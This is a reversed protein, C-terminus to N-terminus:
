MESLVKEIHDIKKVLHQIMMTNLAIFEEYRLSYVFEGEVIKDETYEQIETHSEGTKPDFVTVESKKKVPITKPDKCFGAFDQSTLECEIMAQEVDQSIFGIHTRGSNGDKFTFSSPILKMFFELFKPNSSLDCINDKLNRDSTNISGSTSYVTGWKHNPSGLSVYGNVDPDWTWMNDHVGIHVFFNGESSGCIYLHQPSPSYIKSSSAWQIPVSNAMYLTGRMTDGTLTLKNALLNNTETETYYRSDHNHSTDSKSNLKSDVESETYYRGDHDGSTKHTNLSQNLSYTLASSAVQSNDNTTLSTAIGKMGNVGGSAYLSGNIQFLESRTPYQNVGVKGSSDIFMIPTGADLTVFIDQVTKVKDTISFEFFYQKDIDFSLTQSTVTYQNSAGKTITMNTWSASDRESTTQGYRFKLSSITNLGNVDAYTISAAITTPAEFNNQRSLSPTVSPDIYRIVNIQKSVSTSFGRSDTITLTVSYNGSTPAQASLTYESNVAANTTYNNFTLKYSSITAYNKATAAATIKACVSSLTQVFKTNDATTFKSYANNKDYVSLNSSSFTPANGSSSITITASSSTVDALRNSDSNANSQSSYTGIYFYYTCKSTNAMAQYILKKEASTFTVTVNGSVVGTLAKEFIGDKVSTYLFLRTYAKGPNSITLTISNSSLNWNPIFTIRARDQTSFQVQSSTTQLGSDSRTLTIAIKYSTNVSLGSVSFSGSTSNTTINASKVTGGSSNYLTYSGSSIQVDASWSFTASTLATSSTKFSTISAYRPIKTLTINQANVYLDSPAIGLYCYASLGCVKSGDSNHPVTFTMTPGVQFWVNITYNININLNQTQTEGNCSISLYASGTANYWYSSYDTRAVLLRCSLTSSNAIAGNSTETVELKVTYNGSTNNAGGYLNYVAM